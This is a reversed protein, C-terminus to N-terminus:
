QILFSMVIEILFSYKTMVDDDVQQENISDSDSFSSVACLFVSVGKIRIIYTMNRM